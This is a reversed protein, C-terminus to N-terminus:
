ENDIVKEQFHALLRETLLFSKDFMKKQKESLDVSGEISCRNLFDLGKQVEKLLYFTGCEEVYNM